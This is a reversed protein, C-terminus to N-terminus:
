YKEPLGRETDSGFRFSCYGPIVRVRGLYLVVRIRIRFFPYKCEGYRTGSPYVRGTKVGVGVLGGSTPQRTM